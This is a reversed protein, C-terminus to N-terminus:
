ANAKVVAMIKSRGIDRTIRRYNEEIADLDVELWTRDTNYKM